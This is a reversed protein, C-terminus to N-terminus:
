SDQPLPQNIIIGLHECAKLIMRRADPYGATRVAEDATYWAADRVGGSKEPHLEQDITRILYYHVPKEILGQETKVKLVNMGLPMEIAVDRLGTEESVEELAAIEMSEGEEIHGKPLTWKGYGDLILAIMVTPGDQRYVVGGASIERRGTVPNVEPVREAYEKKEENEAKELGETRANDTEGTSATTSIKEGSAEMDKYLSGLVGNIFKGSSDGGFTKALEIAENIAVRPPVEADFKLEYIGIRLVNRDCVTIQQLPWEPAYKEILVNIEDWHKRVGKLLRKTFGNDDFDPAFEKMNREALANLDETCGCFDWEFFTQMAITRALHRNSM